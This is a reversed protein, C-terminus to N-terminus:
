DTPGPNSDGLTYWNLILPRIYTDLGNPIFNGYLFLTTVLLNIGSHSRKKM